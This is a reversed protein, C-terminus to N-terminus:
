EPKDNSTLISGYKSPLFFTLTTRPFSFQFTLPSAFLTPLAFYIGLQRPHSITPCLGATDQLCRLAVGPCWERKGELRPFNLLSFASALFSALGVTGSLNWCKETTDMQSIELLLLNQLWINSVTCLLLFFNTFAFADALQSILLSCFACLPTFTRLFNGTDGLSFFSM